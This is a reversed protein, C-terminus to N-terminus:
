KFQIYIRDLNKGQASRKLKIHGIENTNRVHTGGCPIKIDGCVWYLAEPENELPVNQIKIGKDIFDNCLFEIEPVKNSDLKAAFDLRGKDSQILCGKIPIEGFIKYTFHIVVHAASHIKMINKRREWDIIIDVEDGVKLSSLDGETIHSVTTNINIVPFEPHMLTKTESTVRKQTDIVRINNIYGIDGIQGGGEPYFITQDLFVENESIQVIKAKAKCAYMDLLYLKKTIM